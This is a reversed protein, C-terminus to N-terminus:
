AAQQQQAATRLSAVMSDVMAAFDQEQYLSAAGDKTPKFGLLELGAATIALPAIRENIQGLRLTPKSAPRTIPVVVPSNAAPAVPAVAKSSKAPAANAVEAPPQAPKAAEAQQRAQEQEAALQDRAAKEAKAQEEARIREREREALEAIRAQEAAEHENIRLKAKAQMADPQDLVLSAVDAFLFKHKDANERLWNLNVQIRGAVENAVIKCDALHQDVAARLSEVTRKNAIAAPFDNAVVPMYPKGLQENLKVVHEALASKGRQVEEVRIQDKRAKVVKESALRATRAVNRLDAITRTLTEVSQVQGLANAEAGDLADEAKKLAKCAADCDAFEQDTNPKAPIKAVFERLKAGFVDLNTHVALAGDMRVSVAPLAEIPAAEVKVASEAPVYAALDAAFQEWGARIRAWLADDPYYWCSFVDGLTGDARLEGTLFLSRVAGAIRVQQELQIRYDIPLCKCAGLERHEPAITEMDAFAARLRQNLLKCEATEDGVFTSGDFSASYRDDFDAVAVFPHLSEGVIEEAHARLLVEVAHGDDFRRQTSHDVEPTIGTAMRHLLESRTCHPSEGLMAPADSANWKNRRHEHWAASGQALGQIVRM